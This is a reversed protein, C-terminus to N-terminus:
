AVGNIAVQLKLPTSQSPQHSLIPVHRAGQNRQDCATTVARQDCHSSNLSTTRREQPLVLDDALRECEPGSNQSFIPLDEDGLRSSVCVRRFSIWDEVQQVRLRVEAVRTSNDLKKRKGIPYWRHNDNSDCASRALASSAVQSGHRVGLDVM